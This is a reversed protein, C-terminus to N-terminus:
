GNFKKIMYDVAIKVQEDTLDLRGGKAPMLGVSGQFGKLAHQHLVETGQAVRPAWEERTPNPAVPRGANHCASCVNDYILAGDLASTRKWCQAHSPHQRAYSKAFRNRPGEQARRVADDRSFPGHVLGELVGPDHGILLRLVHDETGHGEVLVEAVEGALCSVDTHSGPRIRRSWAVGDGYAEAEGRHLRRGRLPEALAEVAVGRAGRDRACSWRAFPADWLVLPRERRLPVLLKSGMPRAFRSPPGTRSVSAERLHEYNSANQGPM